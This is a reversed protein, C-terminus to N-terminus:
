GVKCYWFFFFGLVCDRNIYFLQEPLHLLYLMHTSLYGSFSATRHKHSIPFRQPAPHITHRGPALAAPHSHLLFHIVLPNCVLWSVPQMSSSHRDLDVSAGSSLGAARLSSWVYFSIFLFCPVIDTM